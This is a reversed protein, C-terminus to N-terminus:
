LQRKDAEPLERINRMQQTKYHFSSSNQWTKERHRNLDDKKKEKLTEQYPLNCQNKFKFWEHMWLIFKVQNHHVRIKQLFPNSKNINQKFTKTRLGSQISYLVQRATNRDPKPILAVSNEHFLNLLVGMEKIKKVVKYLAAAIYEKRLHKTHYYGLSSRPGRSCKM